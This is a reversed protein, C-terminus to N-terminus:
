LGDVHEQIYHKAYGGLSWFTCRCAPCEHKGFARKNPWPVLGSMDIDSVRGM